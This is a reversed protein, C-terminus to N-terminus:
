NGIFMIGYQYEFNNEVSRRDREYFIFVSVIGTSAWYMPVRYVERSWDCFLCSMGVYVSPPEYVADNAEPIEYGTLQMPLSDCYGLPVVLCLINRVWIDDDKNLDGKIKGILKSIMKIMKKDLIIRNIGIENLHVSSIENETEGKNKCWEFIASEM